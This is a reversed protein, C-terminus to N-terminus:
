YADQAPRAIAPLDGSDGMAHAMLLRKVLPLRNTLSLGTSRLRGLMPNDATFLRNLRDTAELMLMVEGRRRREYRGLLARPFRLAAPSARGACEALVAADLLGVNLGQGALPHMLHAADGVLVVRGASYQRAHRWRLPFRLRRSTALVEGLTHGFATGLETCFSADDLELMRAAVAETTSWVVSCWDPAALPLFALPGEPLFCQRAIRGHDLATRVNAVVAYQACDREDLEIGALGRLPSEGGDCAAAIRAVVEHGSRLELRLSEVGPLLAEVVGTVAVIGRQAQLAGHLARLLNSHEVIYGLAPRGSDAADFDITGRRTGDWVRMGHYAAVRSLDLRAWAGAASLIRRSAPTLSYTRLDWPEDHAPHRAIGDVVGVRAGQEALLCALTAGVVGNGVVAVDLPNLGPRAAM